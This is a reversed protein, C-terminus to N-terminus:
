GLCHSSRPENNCPSILVSKEPTAIHTQLHLNLSVPGINTRSNAIEHRKDGDCQHNLAWSEGMYMTVLGKHCRALMGAVSVALRSRM